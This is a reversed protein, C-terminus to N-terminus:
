APQIGVRHRLFLPLGHSHMPLDIQSQWATMGDGSTEDSNVAHRSDAVM